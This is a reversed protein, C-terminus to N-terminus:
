LRCIGSGRLHKAAYFVKPLGQDMAVHLSGDDQIVVTACKTIEVLVEKPQFGTGGLVFTYDASDAGANTLVTIVQYNDFGKRMAIVHANSYLPHNQYILYNHDKRIVHGRIQNM